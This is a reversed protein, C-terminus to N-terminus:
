ATRAAASSDASPTSPERRPWPGEATAKWGLDALSAELAALVLTVNAKRTSHGMLGIRWVKGKLPGLGGGIEIGYEALLRRARRRTSATPCPSRTSSRCSTGPSPPRARPRAGGPGRDAGRPERPAARLPGRARGRRRPALAERLAYNMRIPATHHYVREQGWYQELMTVDLYWSQVSRRAARPAGGPRAPRVTVPALGPPCSLCKQTGSYAADIGWADIEVPVGGLSTM